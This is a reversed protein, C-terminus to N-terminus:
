FDPTDAHPIATDKGWYSPLANEACIAETFDAVPRSYTVKASWAQAFTGPDEVTFDVQLVKGKYNPDVAVGYFLEPTARNTKAYTEMAPIATEGDVLRYREVVHLAPSFPAGLWEIEALPGVKIGVTDVVLTDGEYHGISDGTWSPAIQAPHTGNLRIHRVSPGAIYAITVRDKQQMVRIEAQISSAFPPPEPLCQDHVTPFIAGSLLEDNQKKVQAAAQPTLNPNTEDAVLQTGEGVLRNRRIRGIPGPGNDPPEFRLANRAWNGSLDPIAAAKDAPSAPSALALYFLLALLSVRQTARRPASTASHSM